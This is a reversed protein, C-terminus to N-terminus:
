SAAKTLEVYLDVRRDLWFKTESLAELDDSGVEGSFHFVRNRLDVAAKMRSRALNKNKGFGPYFYEMNSEHTILRVIQGMTYESIPKGTFRQMSCTALADELNAGAQVCQSALQKIALEIDHIMSFPQAIRWLHEGIQKSTIVGLLFDENGVLALGQRGILDVAAALSQQARVFDAPYLYDDIEAQRPDTGTPHYTFCQAVSRSSFIGLVRNNLIVPLHTAGAMELQAFAEGITTGPLLSAYPEDDIVDAVRFLRTVQVEAPSAPGGADADPM